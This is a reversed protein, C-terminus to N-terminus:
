QDFIDLFCSSHRHLCPRKWRNSHEVESASHRSNRVASAASSERYITGADPSNSVGNRCRHPRMGNPFGFGLYQRKVCRKAVRQSFLEKLVVARSPSKILPDLTRTRTRGGFNGFIKFRKRAIAPGSKNLPIRMLLATLLTSEWLVGRGVLGWLNRTRRSESGRM